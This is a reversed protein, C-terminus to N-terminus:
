KRATSYTKGESSKMRNLCAPRPSLAQTRTSRVLLPSANRPWSPRDMMTPLFPWSSCIERFSATCRIVSEPTLEM